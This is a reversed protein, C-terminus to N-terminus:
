PQPSSCHLKFLYIFLNALCNSSSWRDVNLRQSRLSRKCATSRGDFRFRITTTVVAKAYLRFVCRLARRIAQSHHDTLKRQVLNLRGVTRTFCQLSYFGCSVAHGAGVGGRPVQAPRWRLRSLDSFFFRSCGRPLYLRFYM